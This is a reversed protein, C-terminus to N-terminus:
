LAFCEAPVLQKGDGLLSYMLRALKASNGEKGMGDHAFWSLVPGHHYFGATECKHLTSGMGQICIRILAVALV